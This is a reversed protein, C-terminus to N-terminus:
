GQRIATNLFAVNNLASDVSPNHVRNNSAPVVSITLTVVKDCSEQRDTVLDLRPHERTRSSVANSACSM